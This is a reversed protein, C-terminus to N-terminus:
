YDSNLTIDSLYKSKAAKDEGRAGKSQLCHPNEGAANDLGKEVCHLPSKPTLIIKLFKCILCETRLVRFPAFLM